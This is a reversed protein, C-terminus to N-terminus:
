QGKCNFPGIYSRVLVTKEGYDLSDTNAGLESVTSSGFAGSVRWAHKEACFTGVANGPYFALQRPPEV